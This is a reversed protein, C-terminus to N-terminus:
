PDKDPRIRKNLLIVSVGRGSPWSLSCKAPAFNVTMEIPEPQRLFEIIAAYAPSASFAGFTENTLRNHLEICELPGVASVVIDYDGSSLGVISAGAPKFVPPVLHSM